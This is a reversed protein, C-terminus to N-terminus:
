KEAEKKTRSVRRVAPKEQEVPEAQGDSATACNMSIWALAESDSVSLVAGKELRGYVTLIPSTILVRM